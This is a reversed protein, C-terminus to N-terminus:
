VAGARAAVEPSVGLTAELRASNLGKNIATGIGAAVASVAALSVAMDAISSQARDAGAGIETGVERGASEAARGIRNEMDAAVANIEGMARGRIGAGLKSLDPLISLYAAGIEVAM